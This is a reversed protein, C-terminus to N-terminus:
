EMEATEDHFRVVKLSMKMSLLDGHNAGGVNSGKFNKIAENNAGKSAAIIKNAAAVVGGVPRAVM